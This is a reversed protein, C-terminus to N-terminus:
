PTVAPRAPLPTPSLPQPEHARACVEQRGHVLLVALGEVLEDLHARRRARPAAGECTQTVSLAANWAAEPGRCRKFCRRRWAWAPVGGALARHPM